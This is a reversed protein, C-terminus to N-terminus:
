DQQFRRDGQEGSTSYYPKQPPIDRKMSKNPVISPIFIQLYNERRQPKPCTQHVLQLLPTEQRKARGHRACEARIEESATGTPGGRGWGFVVKFLRLDSWIGTNVCLRRPASGRCACRRWYVNRLRTTLWGVAGLVTNTPHAQRRIRVRVFELPLENM